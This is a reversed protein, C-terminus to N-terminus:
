RQQGPALTLLKHWWWHGTSYVKSHDLHHSQKYTYTYLGYNKFSTTEMAKSMSILDSAHLHTRGVGVCIRSLRREEERRKEERRKEERRKEERRRRRKERGGERTRALAWAHIGPVQVV